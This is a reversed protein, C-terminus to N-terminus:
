GISCITLNIYGYIKQAKPFFRTCSCRWGLATSTRMSM